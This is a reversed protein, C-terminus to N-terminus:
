PSRVDKDKRRPLPFATYPVGTVNPRVVRPPACVGRFFRKRYQRQYKIAVPHVFTRDVQALRFNGDVQTGFTQHEVPRLAKEPDVADSTSPMKVAM